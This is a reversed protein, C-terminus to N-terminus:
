SSKSDNWPVEKITYFFGRKDLGGMFMLPDDFTDSRDYNYYGFYIVYVETGDAFKLQITQDFDVDKLTSKFTLGTGPVESSFDDGSQTLSFPRNDYDAVKLLRLIDKRKLEDEFVFNKWDLHKFGPVKSIDVLLSKLLDSSVKTSAVWAYAQIAESLFGVALLGALVAGSVGLVKALWNEEHNDPVIDDQKGFEPQEGKFETHGIVLLPDIYEGLNTDLVQYHLHPGTTVEGQVADNPSGGSLGLRSGVTVIAGEKVDIASLHGLTIALGQYASTIVVTRGTAKGTPLSIVGTLPAVLETGKPVSLDVGNHHSQVGNLTREGFPSTIVANKINEFAPYLTPYKRTAKTAMKHDNENVNAPGVLLKGDQVIPKNKM